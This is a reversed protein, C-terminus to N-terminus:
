PKLALGITLGRNFLILGFCSLDVISSIVSRVLRNPGIKLINILKKYYYCELIYSMIFLIKYKIQFLHFTM